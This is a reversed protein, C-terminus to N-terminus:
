FFERLKFFKVIGFSAHSSIRIEHYTSGYKVKVKIFSSIPNQTVDINRKQVLMGGPRIEWEEQKVSSIEDVM